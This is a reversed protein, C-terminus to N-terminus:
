KADATCLANRYGHLDGAANPIDIRAYGDPVPPLCFDPTKKCALPNCTYGGCRTIKSYRVLVSRGCGLCSMVIKDEAGRFSRNLQRSIGLWYKKCWGKPETVAFDAAMQQFVLLADKDGAQNIRKAVRTFVGFIAAEHLPKKTLCEKSREAAEIALDLRGKPTLARDQNKQKKRNGIFPAALEEQREFFTGLLKTIYNSPGERYFAYQGEVASMNKMRWRLRLLFTIITDIEARKPTLIRNNVLNRNNEWLRWFRESIDLPSDSMGLALPSVPFFFSDRSELIDELDKYSKTDGSLVYAATRNIPALSAPVVFDEESTERGSATYFVKADYSAKGDAVAKRARLNEIQEVSLKDGFGKAEIDVVETPNGDKDYKIALRDPQGLIVRYGRGEWEETLRREADGRNGIM